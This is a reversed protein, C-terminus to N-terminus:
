ERKAMMMMMCIESLARAITTNKKKTNYQEQDSRHNSLVDTVMTITKPYQDNGLSFQSVFGRMLSGYKSQDSGRLLLYAMWQSYAEKKM